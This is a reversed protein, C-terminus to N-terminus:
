GMACAAAFATSVTRAAVVIVNTRTRRRGPLGISRRISSSMRSPVMVNSSAREWTEPRYAMSRSTGIGCCYADYRHFMRCPSRPLENRERPADTVEIMRATRGHVSKATPVPSSRLKTAPM